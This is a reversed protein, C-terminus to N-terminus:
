AVAESAPADPATAATGDLRARLDRGFRESVEHPPVAEAAARAAASAAPDLLADAAVIARALSAADGATFVRAFREDVTEALGGGDPVISPLGFTLALLLAGSNLSRVYPLVAVDAAGLFLQVREPEIREPAVTILPHAVLREVLREVGPEDTPAGAVVFRRDRGDPPLLDLADVLDDLGKYPRIAGLTVFVVADPPLGLAHRGQERSVHDPYAGLYSPHPAHLVKDAPVPFWSAVLEPTRPTMVHVATAREVVAIRLAAEEDAFRTEHPLINHITWVLRGGAGLLRDLRRVFREREARAARVDPVGKLVGNLWHLHLVVPLGARALATLEDIENQGTVAVPALGSSWVHGYLLQQYPNTVYWPHVGVLIPDPHGAGAIRLAALAADTVSGPPADKGRSPVRM